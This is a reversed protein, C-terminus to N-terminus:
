AISCMALSYIALIVCFECIQCNNYRAKSHDSNQSQITAQTVFFAFYGRIQSLFVNFYEGLRTVQGQSPTAPLLVAKHTLDELSLGIVASSLLSNKVVNRNIHDGFSKDSMNVLKNAVPVNSLKLLNM